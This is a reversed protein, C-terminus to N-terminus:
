NKLHFAPLAWKAKVAWLRLMLISSMSLLTNLLISFELANLTCYVIGGAACATAYIERQLILPIDNCIIDRMAGGATASIVGMMIAVPASVATQQLAIQVGIVTFVALGFADSVVIIRQDFRRTIRQGIVALAVAITVLLLYVPNGIWSVPHNDLILDRLTGGGLATVFAIVMVGFIDMARRGAALAGSIAFVLVGFCDSIYLWQLITM